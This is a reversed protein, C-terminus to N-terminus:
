RRGFDRYKDFIFKVIKNATANPSAFFLYYVIAGENNRMPIPKPVYRFGAIRILRNRFGEVITEIDTREQWGFFNGDRSYALSRWSEDGWYRTMREIDKPDVGEPNRWLVNRNMDMVPFNLFIEITRLQGATETVKWDLHLGYPDVLCLARVFNKYRLLPFIEAVLIENCDGQRLHVDARDGVEERLIDIKDQSLEIFWYERFPPIVNLANLPSGPVMEGGSKRVHMGAGAFADIYVHRLSPQATLITSYAAAYQQVIELKLESWYGIEDFRPM